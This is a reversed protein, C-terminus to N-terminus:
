VSARENANIVRKIKVPTKPQPAKPTNADNLVTRLQDIQGQLNKVEEPSASIEAVHKMSVEDRRKRAADISKQFSDEALGAVTAKSYGAQPKAPYPKGCLCILVTKPANSLSRFEASGYGGAQFQEAGYKFFFSSGCDCILQNNM